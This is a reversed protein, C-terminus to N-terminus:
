NFRRPSGETGVSEGDEPMELRESSGGVYSLMNTGSRYPNARRNRLGSLERNLSQNDRTLQDHADSLDDIQRQMSRVKARLQTSEEERDDM